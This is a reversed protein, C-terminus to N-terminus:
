GSAQCVSSTVCAAKREGCESRNTGSVYLLGLFLEGDSGLLVVRECGVEGIRQLLQLDGVAFQGPHVHPHKGKFTSYTLAHM